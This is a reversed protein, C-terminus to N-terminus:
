SPDYPFTELYQEKRGSPYTLKTLCYARGNLYFWKESRFRSSKFSDGRYRSVFGEYPTYIDM